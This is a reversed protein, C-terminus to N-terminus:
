IIFLKHTNISSPVVGRGSLNILDTNKKFKDFRM